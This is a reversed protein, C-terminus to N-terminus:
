YPGGEDKEQDYDRRAGKHNKDAANLWGLFLNKHFIHPLEKNTCSKWINDNNLMDDNNLM